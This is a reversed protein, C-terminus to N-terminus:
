EQYPELGRISYGGDIEFISGSILGSEPASLFSAVRGIDSLQAIRNLAHYQTYFEFANNIYSTPLGLSELVSTRTFGPNIANVRIGDQAWESALVKTMQLIAGKIIAYLPLGLVHRNTIVSGINIISGKTSKLHPYAYRCLLLIHSINTTFISNIQDESVASLPMAANQTIANNVLIDLRGFAKVTQEILAPLHDPNELSFELGLATGGKDNILQAAQKADEPKRSTIVTIIDQDAMALAIGQGIGKTSGTILAVKREESM